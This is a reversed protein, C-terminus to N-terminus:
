NCIDGKVDTYYSSWLPRAAKHPKKLMVRLFVLRRLGPLPPKDSMAIADVPVGDPYGFAHESMSSHDLRIPTKWYEIVGGYERLENRITELSNVSGKFATFTSDTAAQQSIIPNPNGFKCYSELNALGVQEATAKVKAGSSNDNSTSCAAVFCSTL